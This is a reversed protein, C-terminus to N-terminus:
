TERCPVVRCTSPRRRHGGAWAALVSGRERLVRVKKDARKDGSGAAAARKVEGDYGGSKRSSRHKRDGRKRHAGSAGSVGAPSSAKAREPARADVAGPDVGRAPSSEGKTRRGNAGDVRVGKSDTRLGANSGPEGAAAEVATVPKKDVSSTAGTGFAPILRIEEEDQASQLRDKSTPTVVREWSTSPSVGGRVPFAEGEGKEHGRGGIVEAETGGGSPSPAPFASSGSGPATGSEVEGLTSSDNSIWQPLVTPVAIKPRRPIPSESAVVSRFRARFPSHLGSPSREEGSGLKLNPRRPSARPALSPAPASSADRPSGGAAATRSSRNSSESVGRTMARIQQAEEAARRKLMRRAHNEKRLRQREENIVRDREARSQRHYACVSLGRVPRIPSVSLMHSGNAKAAFVDLSRTDKM